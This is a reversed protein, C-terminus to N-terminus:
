PRVILIDNLGTYRLDLHNWTPTDRIDELTTLGADMFLKKNALVHAYIEQPTLGTIKIDIARGYRHQSLKGGITCSPERFGSYRRENPLVTENPEDDWWDNITLPKGFTDRTFQALTIIRPDVFWMSKQGYTDFINKSVFETIYFDKSIKNM